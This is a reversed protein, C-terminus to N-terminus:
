LRRIVSWVSDQVQLPLDSWSILADDTGQHRGEECELIGKDPSQETSAVIKHAIGERDLAVITYRDITVGGNDYVAEISGEIDSDMPVAPLWHGEVPADFIDLM